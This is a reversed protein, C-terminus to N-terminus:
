RRVRQEPENELNMTSPRRILQLGLRHLDDRYELYVQLSNGTCIPKQYHIPQMM